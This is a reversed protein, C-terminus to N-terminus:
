VEAGNLLTNMPEGDIVVWSNSIRESEEAQFATAAFRKLAEILAIVRTRSDSYNILDNPHLPGTLNLCGISSLYLNPPHGPHILIGMRNGTNALLLGPMPLQGPVDVNTNYGITRYRQGFQTWIPYRGQEIRMSTGAIENEGPGPCECVYGSLEAISDGNRFVCYRGYTRRLAGSEQIGLRVVQLEWGNGTFQM